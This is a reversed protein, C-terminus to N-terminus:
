KAELVKLAAECWSLEAETIKIGYDITILWYKLDPSDANKLSLKNQLSNLFSLGAENAKKQHMLHYIMDQAKGNRGFFLKLLLENRIVDPQPAYELWFALMERGKETITYTKKARQNKGSAEDNCFVLAEKVCQALTPYIQGPSESWFFQTSSKIAKTIEYGSMDQITLMGLIIYKTRSRNAM